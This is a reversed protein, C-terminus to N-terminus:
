AKTAGSGFALYKLICTCQDTDVGNWGTIIADNNAETLTLGDASNLDAEEGVETGAMTGTEIPALLEHDDHLVDVDVTTASTAAVLAIGVVDKNTACPAVEGNEDFQVLDGVAITDSADFVRVDRAGKIRKFGTLAM